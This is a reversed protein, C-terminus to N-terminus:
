DLSIKKIDSTDGLNSVLVEVRQGLGPHRYDAAIDALPLLVFAREHAYPHPVILNEEQIKEEDWFIIDLDITRQGWKEIRVRDLDLEIKQCLALFDQASLDTEVQCALNLFDAQDTKGWAPTEYIPSVLGLRCDPHHDLAELAAKLYALRDGMNGGISLYALHKM